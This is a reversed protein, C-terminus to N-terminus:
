TWKQLCILWRCTTIDAHVFVHPKRNVHLCILSDSSCLFCCGFRCTQEGKCITLCPYLSHSSHLLMPMEMVDTDVSTCSHDVDFGTYYQNLTPRCGEQQSEFPVNLTYLCTRYWFPMCYMHLFGASLLHNSSKITTIYISHIVLPIYLKIHCLHYVYYIVIGSKSVSPEGSLIGQNIHGENHLFEWAEKVIGHKSKDAVAAACCVPCEVLICTTRCCIVWNM